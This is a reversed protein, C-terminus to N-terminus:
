AHENHITYASRFPKAIKCPDRDIQHLADDSRALRACPQALGLQRPAHLRRLARDRPQFAPAAQGGRARKAAERVTAFAPVLLDDLPVGEALQKRFMTTRERLEADTLRVLDPELANIAEVKPRYGKVKRDNSRGFVKAAIAGISLM